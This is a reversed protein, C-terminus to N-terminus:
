TSSSSMPVERKAMELAPKGDSATSVKYGRKGLRTTLMSVIRITTWM